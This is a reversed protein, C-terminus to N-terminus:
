AEVMFQASVSMTPPRLKGPTLDLGKTVRYRGPTLREPRPKSFYVEIREPGSQQGVRLLILPLPFAQRRNIWRWGESTKKELKFGFTYGLWGEGTNTLVLRSVDDEDVRCPYVEMRVRKRLGNLTESASSFCRSDGTAGVRVTPSQRGDQSGEIPGAYTTCSALLGVVTVSVLSGVRM